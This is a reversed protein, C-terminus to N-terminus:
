ECPGTGYGGPIGLVAVEAGDPSWVPVAAYITADTVRVTQKTSLDYIM